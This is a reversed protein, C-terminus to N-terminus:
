LKVMLNLGFSRTRPVGFMEFGQANSNNFTSEPDVNPTKKHLILLNRAVFSLSASQFKVQGIREFPLKYGLIVQRLKIYDSKYVFRESQAKWNDYYGQLDTYQLTKTFPAGKDDM